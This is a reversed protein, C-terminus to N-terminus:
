EKSNEDKVFARDAKSAKGDESAKRVKAAKKYNTYKKGKSDKKDKFAKKDGSAKKDKSGEEAKSPNVANSAKGASGTHGEGDPKREDQNMKVDKSAKKEDFAGQNEASAKKQASVAQNEAPAKKEDAGVAEDKYSEEADFTDEDDEDFYYDPDDESIDNDKGKESASLPREEAYENAGSGADELTNESPDDAAAKTKADAASNGSFKENLLERISPTKDNSDDYFLQEKNELKDSVKNVVKNVMVPVKRGHKVVFVINLIILVIIILVVLIVGGVLIYALTNIGKYGYALTVSNGELDYTAYKGMSGSPTLQRLEGSKEEFLVIDGGTFKGIVGMLQALDDVPKFRLQHVQNGDDPIDIHMKEQMTVGGEEKDAGGLLEERIVDLKDEERFNGDVLIDSMHIGETTEASAITTRYRKYTATVTVDKTMNDVEKIDWDVYYGDREKLVPYDEETLTDGYKKNIRGVKEKGGEADEDELVFNVALSNFEYPLDKYGEEYTLKEDSGTSIPVVQSSKKKTEKEMDKFVRNNLVDDYSIPEAKLSYSVRDIGALSDSVFYNDRVEAKEGVHGAIAGYWSEAEGVDVLTLCKSINMGDGAVGGVYSKGDLEGKAYSELIYSYSGGAIGGVYDATKSLIKSYSGCNIITGMEQLGCIGGAYNKQSTVDGYNRNDRLVCKTLFSSNMNADKIGTVASEKDFEYEIAMTGAIGSVDIDGECSGYNFCSDVTADTTFTAEELSKDEFVTTYDKDLVGDIADTYLELISNFQDSVALLDDVLVGTAGNVEQNLIGFNDNMSAMNDALSNTHAKYEDSLSPIEIRDYGAVTSVISKAADTAGSLAGTAAEFRNAALEIDSRAETAMEPFHRRIIEIMTGGAAAVDEIMNGSYYGEPSQYVEYAYAKAQADAFVSSEADLAKDAGAKESGDDLPFSNTDDDSVYHVWYGDRATIGSGTGDLDDRASAGPDLALYEDGSKFRLDATYESEGANRHINQNYFREFARDYNDNFQADISDLANKATDYDTKEAETMYQRLSLDDITEGLFVTSYHFNRATDSAQDMLGGSKSAEDLIYDARSIATNAAGSIGNVFDVTGNAIFRTDEVAQSTFQQIMALRNSITNSQSKADNLTVTVSDHLKAIAESLQYAIDSSLDVTIYPEAQGVIGGVDKRGLIRGNNSCGLIYGSQRGAIGGVNYGVHEYGVSGNNICRSIIGISTGAIGGIDSITVDKYAEDDSNKVNKILNLLKNLNEMSDLTIQTDTNTTNVTAENRSNEINGRNEGAIGGTFHIGNIFGESTCFSITGTLENMGVLGGVYDSGKVIGKFTCERICGHNDGCVGGVIVPSGAPMVSGAINLNSVKATEQLYVFFGVYSLEDKVNFESITHGQGDFEGGFSPIGKFDKGVLSIDSTLIVRKNVSWTDLRCNNALEILDAASSIRIEEMEQPIKALVEDRIDEDVDVVDEEAKTQTGTTILKTNDGQNETSVIDNEAFSIIASGSFLLAATVAAVLRRNM